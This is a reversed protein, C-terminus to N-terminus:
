KQHMAFKFDSHKKRLTIYYSLSSVAYLEWVWWPSFDWLKLFILMDETIEKFLETVVEDSVLSNRYFLVPIFLQLVFVVIWGILYTKGGKSYFVKEMLPHQKGDEMQVFYRTEEEKLVIEFSKTQYIGVLIGVIIILLLVITDTVNELKVNTTFQVFAFIPIIYYRTRTVKEFKFQQYMFFFSVLVTVFVSLFKIMSAM